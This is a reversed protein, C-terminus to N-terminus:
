GHEIGREATDHSRNGHPSSGPSATDHHIWRTVSDVHGVPQTVRQSDDIEDAPGEDAGNSKGAAWDVDVQIRSIARDIHGM